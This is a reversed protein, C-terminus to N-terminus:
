NSKKLLEKRNYTSIVISIKNKQIIKDNFNMIHWDYPKEWVLGNYHSINEVEDYSYEPLYDDMIKNNVFNRYRFLYGYNYIVYKEIEKLATRIKFAPFFSLCKFFYYM